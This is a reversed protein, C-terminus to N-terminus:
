VTSGKLKPVSSGWIKHAVKADNATVTCGGIGRVHLVAEFDAESPYGITEYLHRARLAGAVQRKMFLKMNDAVTQVFSYKGDVKEPYYVHLGCPHMEFIMNPLGYEEWFFVRILNCCVVHVLMSCVHDDKKDVSTSCLGPGQANPM